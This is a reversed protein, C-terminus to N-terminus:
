PQFAESSPCPVPKGRTGAPIGKRLAWLGVDDRFRTARVPQIVAEAWAESRRDEAALGYHRSRGRATITGRAFLFGAAVDFAHSPTGMRV